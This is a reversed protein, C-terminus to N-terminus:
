ESWFNIIIHLDISYTQYFWDITEQITKGMISVIPSQFSSERKGLLIYLRYRFHSTTRGLSTDVFLLGVVSLLMPGPSILPASTPSCGSVGRLLSYVIGQM